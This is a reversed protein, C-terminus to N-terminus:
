APHCATSCELVTCYEGAWPGLLTGAGGDCAGMVEQDPWSTRGWVREAQHGAGAGGWGQLHVSLSLARASPSGIPRHAEVPCAM